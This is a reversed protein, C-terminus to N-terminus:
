TTGEEERVTRIVDVDKVQVFGRGKGETYLGRGREEGSNGATNGPTKRRQQGKKTVAVKLKQSTNWIQNGHRNGLGLRILSKNVILEPDAKISGPKGTWVFSPVLKRRTPEALNDRFRYAIFDSKQHFKRLIAKILYQDRFKEELVVSLLCDTLMFNTQM